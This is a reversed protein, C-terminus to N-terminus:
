WMSCEEVEFFFILTKMYNLMKVDVNIRFSELHNYSKCWSDLFMLIYPDCQVFWIQNFM